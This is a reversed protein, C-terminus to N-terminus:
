RNSCRRKQYMYVAALQVLGIATVAFGMYVGKPVFRATLSFRGKELPVYIFMDIATDYEVDKGGQEIVWGEQNPLMLLVGSNDEKIEGSVEFRSQKFNTVSVNQAKIEESMKGLAENNDYLFNISNTKFGANLRLKVEVEEGKEVRGLTAIGFNDPSLYEVNGKGNVSIYVVPLEATDIHLYLNGTQQATFSYNINASEAASIVSYVEQNDKQTKRHM